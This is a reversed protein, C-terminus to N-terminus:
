GIDKLRIKLAEAEAKQKDSGSAIVEVLLNGAAEADGMDAYARALDLKTDVEDIAASLPDDHEPEIDAELSDFDFEVLGPDPTAPAEPEDGLDFSSLDIEALPELKDSTKVPAPTAISAAPEPVEVDLDFDVISLDSVPPEPAAVVVVPPLSPTVEVPAETPAADPLLGRVIEALRTEDAASLQGALSAALGRLEDPRAAAVYTEALKLQLESRGPEEAIAKKLMQIAEDYLGYALHFDAETLPDGSDLGLGLAADVNDAPLAELEDDPLPPLEAELLAAFEPTPAPAAAAAPSAVVTDDDAAQLQPAAEDIRPDVAVFAGLTQAEVPAAVAQTKGRRKMLVLALLLILALAAGIMPLPLAQDEIPLSAAAPKAAVPAEVAPAAAAEAPVPEAPAAAGVESGAVPPQEAAPADAPALEAAPPVTATDAAAPAPAAEVAPAIAPPSAAAPALAAPESILAPESASAAAAPAPKAAAPQARLEALKLRATAADVAKAQAATPVTLRSGSLLQNISGNGFAKPNGEYLALLMQDMTVGPEVLVEKAISWLTQSAKVPGYVAVPVPAASGAEPKPPVTARVAPQAPSRPQSAAPPVAVVPAPASASPAAQLDVLVTYERLLRGGNWRAEVIFSVFPDRVVQDSSVKISNGSLAFKLTSVLDTRELGSRAFADDGALTVVVSDLEGQTSSLLPISAAFKQNLKSRLEIDGLGLAQASSLWLMPVFALLAVRNRLM